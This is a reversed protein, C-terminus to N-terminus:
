AIRQPTPPVQTWNDQGQDHLVDMLNLAKEELKRFQFTLPHTPTLTGTIPRMVVANALGGENLQFASKRFSGHIAPHGKIWWGIQEEENMVPFSFNPNPEMM